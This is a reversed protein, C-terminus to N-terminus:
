RTTEYTVQNKWLDCDQPKECNEELDGPQKMLLIRWPANDGADGRLASHCGHPAHAPVHCQFQQLLHDRPVNLPPFGQSIGFNPGNFDITFM